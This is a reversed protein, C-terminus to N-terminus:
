QHVLREEGLLGAYHHTPYQTLYGAMGNAVVIWYWLYPSLVELHCQQATMRSRLIKSLKLLIMFYTCRVLFIM